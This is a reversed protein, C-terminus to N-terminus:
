ASEGQLQAVVPVPEPGPPRVEWVEAIKFMKVLIDVARTTVTPMESLGCQIKLINNQRAESVPLEGLGQAINERVMLCYHMVINPKCQMNDYERLYREAPDAVALPIEPETDVLFQGLIRSVQTSGGTPEPQRWLNFWCCKFRCDCM